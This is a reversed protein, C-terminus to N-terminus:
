FCLQACPHSDPPPVSAPIRLVHGGAFREEQAFLAAFAGFCESPKWDPLATCKRCIAESNRVSNEFYCVSVFYLAMASLKPWLILEGEGDEVFPFQLTSASHLWNEGGESVGAGCESMGRLCAMNGDPVSPGSPVLGWGFRKGWIVNIANMCNSSCMKLRAKKGQIAEKQRALNKGGQPLWPTMWNELSHSPPLDSLEKTKEEQFSGVESHAM